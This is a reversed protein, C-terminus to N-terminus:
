LKIFQDCGEYEPLVLGFKEITSRFINSYNYKCHYLDEEAIIFEIM